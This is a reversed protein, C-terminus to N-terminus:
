KSEEDSSPEQAPVIEESVPESSSSQSYSPDSNDTSSSSEYLVENRLSISSIKNKIFFRMNDSDRITVRLGPLIEDPVLFTTCISGTEVSHFIMAIEVLRPTQKSGFQQGIRKRYKELDSLTCEYADLDQRVRIKSFNRPVKREGDWCNLFTAITTNKRFEDVKGEYIEMAKLLEQNQCFSKIIEKLFSYDLFNVYLGLEHLFLHINTLSDMEKIIERIFIYHEGQQHGPLSMFHHIINQTSINNNVLDQIVGNMLRKMSEELDKKRQM